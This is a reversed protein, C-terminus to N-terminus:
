RTLLFDERGDDASEGVGVDGLLEADAEVHHLLMDLGEELLNSGRVAGFGDGDGESLM